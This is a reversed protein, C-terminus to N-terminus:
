RGVRKEWVQNMVGDRVALTLHGEVFTGGSTFSVDVLISYTKLADGTFVINPVREAGQVPVSSTANHALDAGRVPSDVDGEVKIVSVTVILGELPRSGSNRVKTDVSITNLVGEQYWVRVTAEPRPVVYLYLLPVGVLILVAVLAILALNRSARPAGAMEHLAAAGAGVIQMRRRIRRSNFAIRTRHKSHEFAFAPTRRHHSRGRAM